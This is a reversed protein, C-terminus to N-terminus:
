SRFIGEGTVFFWVLLQEHFDRAAWNGKPAVIQGTVARSNVVVRGNEDIRGFAPQLNQM